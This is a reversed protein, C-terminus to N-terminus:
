ICIYAIGIYFIHPFNLHVSLFGREEGRREMEEGGGYV